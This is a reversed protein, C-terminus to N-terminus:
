FSNLKGVVLKKHHVIAIFEQGKLSKLHEPARNASFLLTEKRLKAKWDFWSLNIVLLSTKKKDRVKATWIILFCSIQSTRRWFDTWFLMAPVALQPSVSLCVSLSHNHYKNQKHPRTM